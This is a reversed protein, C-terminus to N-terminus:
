REYGWQRLARESGPVDRADLVAREDAALALEVGPGVFL